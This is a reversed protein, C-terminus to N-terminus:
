SLVLRSLVAVYPLCLVVCSFLVLHCLVVSLVVLRSLVLCSLMLLVGGLVLLSVAVVGLCSSLRSVVFPCYYDVSKGWGRHMFSLM